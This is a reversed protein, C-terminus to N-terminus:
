IYINILIKVFFVFFCVFYNLIGPQLPPDNRGVLYKELRNKLLEDNDIASVLRGFCASARQRRSSIMTTSDGDAESGDM